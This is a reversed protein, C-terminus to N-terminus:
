EFVKEIFFCNRNDQQRHYDIVWGYEHILKLLLISGWHAEREQPNFTPDETLQQLQNLTTTFDYLEGYDWIRIQLRETFLRADLEIPTEPSLHRHAHNVSNTFGELLAIQGELWLKETLPPSQFQQFWETVSTLAELDTETQLQAQQILPM